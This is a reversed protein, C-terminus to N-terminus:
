QQASQALTLSAEAKFSHWFVSDDDSSLNTPLLAVTCVDTMAYYRHVYIYIYICVCVCVCTFMDGYLNPNCLCPKTVYIYIYIYINMMPLFSVIILYQQSDVCDLSLYIYSRDIINLM